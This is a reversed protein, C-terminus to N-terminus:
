HAQYTMTFWSSSNDKRLKLSTGSVKYEYRDSEGAYNYFRIYHRVNLYRTLKYEGSDEDGNGFHREFAKDPSSLTLSDFQQATAGSKVYTGEPYVWGDAKGGTDEVDDTPDDPQSACATAVLVTSTIALLRHM